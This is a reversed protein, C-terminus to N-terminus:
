LENKINYIKNNIPDSVEFNFDLIERQTWPKIQTNEVNVEINTEPLGYKGNISFYTRKSGINSNLIMDISKNTILKNNQLNIIELRKFISKTCLIEVFNDDINQNSLDISKLCIFQKSNLLNRKNEDTLIINDNNKIIYTSNMTKSNFGGENIIDQYSVTRYYKNYNNM